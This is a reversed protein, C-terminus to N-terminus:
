RWGRSQAESAETDVFAAKLPTSAAGCETGFGSSGWNLKLNEQIGLLGVCYTGSCDYFFGSSAGLREGPGFGGVLNKGLCIAQIYRRCILTTLYARM